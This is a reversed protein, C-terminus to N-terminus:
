RDASVSAFLRVILVPAIAIAAIVGLIVLLVRVVRDLTPVPAPTVPRGGARLPHLRHAHGM